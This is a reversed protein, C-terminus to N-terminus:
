IQEVAVGESFEDAIKIPLFSAFPLAFIEGSEVFHFVGQLFEARSFNLPQLQPFKSFRNSPSGYRVRNLSEVLAIELVAIFIRLCPRM